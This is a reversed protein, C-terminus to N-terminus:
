QIYLIYILVDSIKHYQSISFGVHKFQFSELNQSKKSHETTPHPRVKAEESERAPPEEEEVIQESEQEQAPEEEQEEEMEEQTEKPEEEQEPIESPLEDFTTLM